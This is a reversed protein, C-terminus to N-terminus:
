LKRKYEGKLKEANSNLTYCRLLTANLFMGIDCCYNLLKTRTQKLYETILLKMIKKPFAIKTPKWNIARKFM